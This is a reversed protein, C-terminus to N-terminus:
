QAFTHPSPKEVPRVLYVPPKRIVNDFGVSPALTPRSRDEQGLASYWAPRRLAPPAGARPVRANSSQGGASLSFYTSNALKEYYFIGELVQRKIPCHVSQDAAGIASLADPHTLPSVEGTEKISDNMKNVIKQLECASHGLIVQNDAYLICKVSLEDM